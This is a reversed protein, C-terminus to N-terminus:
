PAVAYHHAVWLVLLVCPAEERHDLVLMFDVISRSSRDTILFAYFKVQICPFNFLSLIVHLFIAFFYCLIHIYVRVCVGSIKLETETETYMVM